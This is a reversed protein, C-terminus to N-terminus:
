EYQDLISTLEKRRKKWEAVLPLMGSVNVIVVLVMMGIIWIQGSTKMLVWILLGTVFLRMFIAKTVTKMARRCRDEQEMLEEESIHEM